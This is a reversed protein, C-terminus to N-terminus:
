TDKRPGDRTCFFVPNAIAEPSSDAARVEVM